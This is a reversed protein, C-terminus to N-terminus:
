GHDGMDHDGMDYGGMDHGGMDHDGMDHMEHESGGSGDGGLDRLPATVEVAGAHEFHLVLRLESEGEAPREPAMLMVHKGGPELVLTGGAPVEFGEPRPVMRVVGGEEEVTEHTEAAGAAPSEVSVLRDAEAGPNVVTLYVVGMESGPMIQAQPDRIELQAEASPVEASPAQASPAEASPAEGSPPEDAPACALVALVAIAAPIITGEMSAKMSVAM